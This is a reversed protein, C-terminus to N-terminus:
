PQSPAPTTAADPAPDPAAAPPIGPSVAPASSPDLRDIEKQLEIDIEQSRSLQAKAAALDADAGAEEALWKAHLAATGDKNVQASKDLERAANLKDHADRLEPAAYDGVRTEDARGVASDALQMQSPPPRRPASSCGVGTLALLATTAFLVRRPNM